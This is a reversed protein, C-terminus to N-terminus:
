RSEEIIEDIVQRIEGEDYEVIHRNITLTEVADRKPGRKVLRSAIETASLVAAPIGLVIMIVDAAGASRIEHHGAYTITSGDDLTVLSGTSVRDTDFLDLLFNPGAKIFIEGPISLDTAHDARGKVADLAQRVEGPAPGAADLARRLESRRDPTQPM